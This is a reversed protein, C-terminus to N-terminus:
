ELLRRMELLLTEMMVADVQKGEVRISHGTEDRLWRLTIGNDLRHVRSGTDGAAAKRPTSRPERGAGAAELRTLVEDLVQWEAEATVGQGASLAARIEHAFGARLGAVIRLGRRETLQTPFNLLDGLEEHLDAFSRIKSRKAKSGSEFLANVAAEVSPFAGAGTAMVAIRGREYHSLDSRIENEEVMAVYASGANEPRRVLARIREWAPKGTEAYIARVASLRRWGSILGFRPAGDEPDLREFVEIPLRVGHALISRRLEEMEEPNEGVRDRSLEDALIDNIGIETVVLGEALAKRYREADAQDRATESRALPDLSSGTAAAEGAVRAIPPISRTERAFGEEITKLEDASPAELRRRRAM